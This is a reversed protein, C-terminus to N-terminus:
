GFEDCVKHEPAGVQDLRGAFTCGMVIKSRLNEPLVRKSISVMLNFAMPTHYLYFQHFTTPYSGHVESLVKKFMKTDVMNLSFDYGSPSIVWPILLVTCEVLCAHSVTLVIRYRM